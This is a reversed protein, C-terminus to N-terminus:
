MPTCKTFHKKHSKNEEEITITATQKSEAGVGEERLKRFLNGLSRPFDVFQPDKQELFHPYHSNETTMRRLIGTLLGYITKPSYKKGEKNRTEAVFVPLWANLEDASCDASLVMEPWKETADLSNHWEVLRTPQEHGM